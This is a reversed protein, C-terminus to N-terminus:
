EEITAHGEEFGFNVNGQKRIFNKTNKRGKNHGEARPFHEMQSAFTQSVWQLVAMPSLQVVAVGSPTSSCNSLSIFALFIDAECCVIFQLWQSKFGGSDYAM